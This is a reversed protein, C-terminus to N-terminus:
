DEFETDDSVSEAEALYRKMMGRAKADAMATVTVFEAGYEVSEVSAIKYLQNVAGQESHPINFVTRKKGAMVLEELRTVLEDVGRGTKASIYIVSDGESVSGISPLEEANKDCKNFVYLTPKGGAGLESLLEETVALQTSYEPDSADIVIMLVDAFVAEDLTSKFAKILHHPLKKIFGVTDTLLVSEGCPLSYKRTTPDLTAFLKDEALIGADTLRNLLTSKGANTYGVIAVKTIDSKDRSARMTMRNKDLIRLEEELAVIRRKMHRKDSELKSEGPGRTGIGGGLRSMETGKGILRPATYKLQALEVQLKGEGTTAHLAFIDLILMSRDIVRIGDLGDELNKIQSPSLESDFVCLEIRNDKCLQCIEKVKGSGILTRPDPSSKAQVVRAFTEGGATDLLRELEDLSKEVEEREENDCEIGVLVARCQIENKNKVIEEM